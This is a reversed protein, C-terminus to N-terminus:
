VLSVFLAFLPLIPSRVLTLPQIIVEMPESVIQGRVHTLVINPVIDVVFHFPKPLHFPRIATFMLPKPAIVDFLPITNLCVLISACDARSPDITFNM